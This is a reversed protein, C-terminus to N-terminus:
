LPEYPRRHDGVEKAKLSKKGRVIEVKLDDLGTRSSSNAASKLQGQKSTSAHATGSTRTRTTPAPETKRPRKKTAAGATKTFFGILPLQGGGLSSMSSPTHEWIVDRVYTHDLILTTPWHHHCNFRTCYCHAGCHAATLEGMVEQTRTCDNM